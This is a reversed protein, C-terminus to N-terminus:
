KEATVSLRRSELDHLLRTLVQLTHSLLSTPDVLAPFKALFTLSSGEQRLGGVGGSMHSISTMLLQFDDSEYFRTDSEPPFEAEFETESIRVRRFGLAGATLRIRVVDYLLEVEPPPAGFRDVLEEAIEKLQEEKELGYLRRYTALRETDNAIYQDPILANVDAEVVVDDRRQQRPEHQFLEQFEEEKLEQVAEELVRTYTEFGMTEIFGSQEGGLLNGAGRIELDRMALNFGSGLENFEELAQLRQLTPRPLISIPPTILYAYAQVNSRGVRGRLQYLEAMGFRDARNVIITNVSPIDLGSEIIKTAVLVDFKRELFDMMVNELEHAKMQGHASHMRVGPLLERLRLLVEDMNQVRDHVFYVQGGRSLERMVAERILQDNWQLIETMIPLRNRPATAIISLDRAGMLSFHLTRPIPTATLALTDVETRLMRLKEKAAVGFRHEEDVILLGLNKFAVDKSLLRHTGIVIDVRGERLDALIKIQEKKSKFRSLVDVRVAYRSTRDLFTHYHQVALITTPVLLAVQTGDAVAKFAARVAVETKGFGVDGCILRDMPAPSEMDVKVDKTAKAQDFTDEYMFSAELEHQWPTDIAFAHGTTHKRKAYLRILDRAIDKVRAKVRSKLKDWENSGLRNLKPLHGEKSSYKQLRSIYNLNVYLMDNGDYQVSVVEQEANRVQIRKLGIFRGIGYDKHVVYDGRKLQQFEKQSLGKFRPTRRKGRRRLRGFIQHETYVAISRSPLAFGAHLSDLSFDIRQLDLTATEDDGNGSADPTSLLEKLRSMEGHGDCLLSVRYNKELLEILHTRLIKVSGNFSPQSIGNFDTTGEGSFGTVQVQPFAAIGALAEDADQAEVGAPSPHALTQRIADPEDLIILTSPSLYEHLRNTPSDGDGRARYLDPVIVAILLDKISRQSLPDFQRLSEVADGSFEMRIPAESGFPFVDIIGGRLAYDGHVEVFDKREFGLRHLASRVDDLEMAAGAEVTLTDVRVAEPSPVPTILGHPHTVLVLGPDLAAARLAQIDAADRSPDNGRAHAGSFLVSVSQSLVASVDDKLREAADHDRGVVLIGRGTEERLAAILLALMSGAVGAVRQPSGPSSSTGIAQLLTRFAETERVIEKLQALM